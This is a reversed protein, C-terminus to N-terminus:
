FFSQFLAHLTFRGAAIAKDLCERTVDILKKGAEDVNGVCFTANADGHFGNYFCSIDINIIDGDVLPRQDPIGHCIVIFFLQTSNKTQACKHRINLEIIVKM